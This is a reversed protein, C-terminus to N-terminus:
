NNVVLIVGLVILIFCFIKKEIIQLSLKENLPINYRKLLFYSMLLMFIPQTACISSNVVASIGSLAFVTCIMGLFCLFENAIFFKFKSLYPPFNRTIDKRLKKIFLFSLPIFGSILNPYIAVNIWNTQQELIYKELVIYLTRLFSSLLVFYFAKSLKPIKRGKISLAVSSMVIIAFGIYQELHLREDLLLWTLVPLIIAGLSFLAEVISTDIVKLSLYFPYLYVIDILALIIYFSLEYVSPITPTGFFLVLPLFLANMLSIYFIMTTPHKFTKTSLQSEIIMATGYFFPSLLSAILFIM